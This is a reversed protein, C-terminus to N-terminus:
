MKVFEGTGQLLDDEDHFVQFTKPVRETKQSHHDRKQGHSDRTQGHSASRLSHPDPKHSILAASGQNTDSKTSKPEEQVNSLKDTLVRKKDVSPKPQLEQLVKPTDQQQSKDDHSTPDNLLQSFTEYISSSKADALSRKKKGYVNMLSLVQCIKQLTVLSLSIVLPNQSFM